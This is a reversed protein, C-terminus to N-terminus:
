PSISIRYWRGPHYERARPRLPNVPIAPGGTARFQVQPRHWDIHETNFDVPARPALQQFQMVLEWEQILTSRNEYPQHVVSDFVFLALQYPQFGAVNPTRVSPAKIGEPRRDPSGSPPIHARIEDALDRTGTYQQSPNQTLHRPYGFKHMANVSQLDVISPSPDIQFCWFKHHSVLPYTMPNFRYVSLRQQWQLAQYYAAEALVVLPDNSCYVTPQGVRNYRGGQTFYAGQGLLPTPWATGDSTVRYLNTADTLPFYM